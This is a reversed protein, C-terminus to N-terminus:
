NKDEEYAGTFIDVVVTTRIVRKVGDSGKNRVVTFTYKEPVLIYKFYGDEEKEILRCEMGNVGPGYLRNRLEREFKKAAMLADYADVASSVVVPRAKGNGLNQFMEVLEGLVAEKDIAVPTSM